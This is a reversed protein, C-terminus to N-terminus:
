ETMVTLVLEAIGSPLQHLKKKQWEREEDASKGAHKLVKPAYLAAGTSHDAMPATAVTLGVSKAVAKLTADSSERAAAHAGLSAKM